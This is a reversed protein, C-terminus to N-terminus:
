PLTLSDQEKLWLWLASLANALTGLPNEEEFALDNYNPRYMQDRRVAHLTEEVLMPMNTYRGLTRIELKVYRDNIKDPLQERIEDTMPAAFARTQKGGITLEEFDGAILKVEGTVIVQHYKYATDQPFGAYKLLKAQEFTVVYKDVSLRWTM